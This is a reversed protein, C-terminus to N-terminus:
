VEKPFAGRTVRRMMGLLYSLSATKAAGSLTFQFMQGSPDTYAILGAQSMSRFHDERVSRLQALERGAPFTRPPIGKAQLWSQHRQWLDGFSSTFILQNTWNRSLDLQVGSQRDTTYFSRGDTVPSHLWTCQVPMKGATGSGIVALTSRDPSVLLAYTVQLLGGPFHAAWGLQVFGTRLADAVWRRTYGGVDIWQSDPQQQLEGFPWIARKEVRHIVTLFVLFFVILGPLIYM